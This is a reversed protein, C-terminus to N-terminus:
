IMQNKKKRKLYRDIFVLLTITMAYAFLWSSIDYGPFYRFALQLSFSCLIVASLILPKLSFKYKNLDFRQNVFIATMFTNYLLFFLCVVIMPGLDIPLMDLFVLLGRNFIDAQSKM